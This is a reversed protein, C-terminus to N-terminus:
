KLMSDTVKEEVLVFGQILQFNLEFKPERLSLFPLALVQILITTKFKKRVAKNLFSQCICITHM